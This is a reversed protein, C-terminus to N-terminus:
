AVKGVWRECGVELVGNCLECVRVLFCSVLIRVGLTRVRCFGNYNGYGWVVLCSIAVGWVGFASEFDNLVRSFFEKGRM